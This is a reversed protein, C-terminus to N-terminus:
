FKLFWNSFGVKMKSFRGPMKLASCTITYKRFRVRIKLVKSKSYTIIRGRMERFATQKRLGTTEGCPILANIQVAAIFIVSNM